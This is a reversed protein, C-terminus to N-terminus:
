SVSGQIKGSGEKATLIESQLAKLDALKVENALAALVAAVHVRQESPMDGALVKSILENTKDDETSLEVNLSMFIDLLKEVGVYLREDLDQQGEEISFGADIFVRRVVERRLMRRYSAVIPM